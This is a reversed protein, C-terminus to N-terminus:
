IQHLLIVTPQKHTSVASRVVHIVENKPNNILELALRVRQDALHFRHYSRKRYHQMNRLVYIGFDFINVVFPDVEPYILKISSLKIYLEPFRRLEDAFVAAIACERRHNDKVCDRHSDWIEAETETINVVLLFWHDEVGDYILIVIGYFIPMFWCDSQREYLYAASINIVESSLKCM